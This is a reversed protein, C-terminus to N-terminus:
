LRTQLRCQPYHFTITFLVLINSLYEDIIFHSSKGVSCPLVGNGFNRIVISSLCSSYCALQNSAVNLFSLAAMKCLSSPLFGSISNSGLDLYQLSSLAGISSPVTGKLSNSAINLYTLSVVRGVSTPISGSIGNSQLELRSLATLLGVEVPITGVLKRGGLLVGTVVGASCTVDGWNPVSGSCVGPSPLDASCSWGALGQSGPNLAASLACM